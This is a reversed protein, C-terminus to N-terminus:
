YVLCRLFVNGENCSFECIIMSERLNGCFDLCCDERKERRACDVSLILSNILERSFSGFVCIALRADRM